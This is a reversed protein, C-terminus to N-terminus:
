AAELGEAAALERLQNLAAAELQRVRERSLGLGGAIETLSKQKGDDLGFRARIILGSRPDLRGLLEGLRDHRLAAIV